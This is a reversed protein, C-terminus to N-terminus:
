LVVLMLMTTSNHTGEYAGAVFPAGEVYHGALSVLLTSNYDFKTVNVVEGSAMHGAIVSRPHIPDQAIYPVWFATCDEDVCLRQCPYGDSSTFQSAGWAAYCERYITNFHCVRDNDDLQMRCIMRNPDTFIMRPDIDDTPSYSVWHFCQDTSKDTFVVFEMVTDPLVQPCPSTLRTCSGETSNYNYAKCDKSQLCAYRVQYPLLHSTVIGDAPCYRGKYSMSLRYLKCREGAVVYQIVVVGLAAGIISSTLDM